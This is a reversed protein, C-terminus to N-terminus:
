AAVSKIVAFNLVPADTATGNTSQFSIQFSGAATLSVYAIYTNTASAVTVHVVDTAAVVSNTVTFSQTSTSGAASFMTIQGCPKNLTVGTTRSTGQTVTGGAGTGYGVGGTPSISIHKRATTFDGTGALTVNPFSLINGSVTWNPLTIVNAITQANGDSSIINGTSALAPASRTQTFMLANGWSGTVNSSAVEFATDIVAGTGEDANTVSWGIRRRTTAGPFVQLDVEGGCLIDYNTAGPIASVISNIGYM